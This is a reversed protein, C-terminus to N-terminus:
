KTKLTKIAWLIFILPPLLGMVAGVKLPGVGPLYASACTIKYVFYCYKKLLVFREGFFPSAVIGGLMAAGLIILGDRAIRKKIDM